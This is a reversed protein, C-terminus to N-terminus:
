LRGEPLNQAVVVGCLHIVSPLKRLLIVLMKYIGVLVTNTPAPLALGNESVAPEDSYLELKGQTDRM